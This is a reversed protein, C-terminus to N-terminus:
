GGVALDNPPIATIPSTAPKRTPIVDTPEPLMIM